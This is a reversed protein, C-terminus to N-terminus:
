RWRRERSRGRQRRQYPGVHAIGHQTDHTRTRHMSVFTTMRAHAVPAPCAILAALLWSVAVPMQLV